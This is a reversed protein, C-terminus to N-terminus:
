HFAQLLARGQYHAPARLGLAWLATAPIDLISASGLDASTVRSGWLIMPILVDVDADSGHLHSGYAGGGGHDSVVMLLTEEDVEQVVRALASDARMVAHGYEASGWGHEHGALDPDPVHVFVLEVAPDRITALAAGAVLNADPEVLTLSDLGFALKCQLAEEFRALPGVVSLFAHAKLGARGANKFLPDLSTMEPTFELDDGWIGHKEPGVGSLLSLHAPTTLAPSVTRALATFAGEAALRTLTPPAYLALADGRLGDISVLVVRKAAAEVPRLARQTVEPFGVVFAWVEGNGAKMQSQVIRTSAWGNADSTDAFTSLREPGVFWVETGALPRGETDIVQVSVLGDPHPLGPLGIAGTAPAFRLEGPARDVVFSFRASSGGSAAVLVGKGSRSDLLFTEAYGGGDTLAEPQSLVGGAEGELAFRVRAGRVPEGGSALARVRFPEASRRGSWVHQADGGVLELHVVGDEPGDPAVLPGGPDSCAAM